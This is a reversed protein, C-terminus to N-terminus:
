AASTWKFTVGPFQPVETEGIHDSGTLLRPEYSTENSNEGYVCATFALILLLAIFLLFRKKM